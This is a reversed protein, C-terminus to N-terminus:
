AAKSVSLARVLVTQTLPASGQLEMLLARCAAASVPKSYLYGQAYDCGLELLLVAQEATEVGEAVIKLQLQRGMDIVANIVPLRAVVQGLERVFTRDIKLVDVPLATLYSLSSYGTGFDDIMIKSGLERLRKLTTVLRDPERMAVAETIEFAILRPEVGLEKTLREVLAAFDTRELQVPLVNFSVPVVPVGADIWARLQTLVQRLAHESLRVILGAREAIPIFRDPPILGETPHRWRMLAELSAIRGTLLEVIPQYEMFIQETGLAEYLAQELTAQETVQRDMQAAFFRHCNRGANKAHYLAIDACKLLTDADRGDDPFVAIGASATVSLSHSGLVLPAAVATRLSLALQEIASKDPMLPAVVLFEDGGMRVVVHQAPLTARLRSAIIRLLQDGQPHGRSDNIHKFNDVDLCILALLRGSGAVKKLVHPFRTALFARNPLGTLADHRAIRILRRRSERERREANKRESVDRAVFAVLPRGHLNIGNAAIQAETWSGDRRRARSILVSLESSLALRELAQADIDPFFDRVGFRGLDAYSCGLAQLATQNADIIRDAGVDVLLISESLQAGILRFRKEAAHRARRSDRLRRILWLLSVALAGALVTATAALSIYLEDARQLARSAGGALLSGLFVRVILLAAMGLTALGVICALLLPALDTSERRAPRNSRDQSM